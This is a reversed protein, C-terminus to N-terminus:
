DLKLFFFDIKNKDNLKKMLIQELANRWQAKSLTNGTHYKMFGPNQTAVLRAYSEGRESGIIYDDAKNLAYPYFTVMYLDYGSKIKNRYPYFYKYVYDLQDVHNMKSLAETSTGLGIATNPMFQILGTAGGTQNKISPSIGSELYMVMMLWNPEISLWSSIQKVKEAFTSRLNQPVKDIYWLTNM